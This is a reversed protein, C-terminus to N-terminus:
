QLRRIGSTIIQVAWVVLALNSVLGIAVAWPQGDLLLAIWLPAGLLGHVLLSILLTAPLLAIAMSTWAYRQVMLLVYLLGFSVLGAMLATLMPNSSGLPLSSAQYSWLSARLGLLEILLHYLWFVAFTLAGSLYGPFWWRTMYLYFVALAPLPYFWGAGFLVPLPVPQGILTQVTGLSLSYNLGYLTRWLPSVLASLHGSVLALLYIPTQQQWALYGALGYCIIMLLIVLVEM